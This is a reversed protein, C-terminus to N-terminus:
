RRGGRSSMLLVGGIVVAGAVIYSTPIGSGLAGAGATLATSGTAQRVTTSILQGTQPDRITQQYAPAAVRSGLINTWTKAMSQLFGSWNSGGGAAAGGTFCEPEEGSQCEGMGRRRRSPMASGHPVLGHVQFSSPRVDDRPFGSMSDWAQWRSIQDIPVMWSPYPGHSTDMAMSGGPYLALVFVHSWRRPDRPNVAVTCLCSHVDLCELLAATLMSFGDCDERADRMRILVSPHILLDQEDDSVGVQIMTREDNQFRVYHKVLWFIAWCKAAPDPSSGGFRRWADLAVRKVAPDDVASRIYEAMKQVTRKTATDISDGAPIAELQVPAGSLQYHQPHM